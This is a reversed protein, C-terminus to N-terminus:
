DGRTAEYVAVTAGLLAIAASFIAIVAKLRTPM